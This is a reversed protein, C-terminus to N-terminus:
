KALRARVKRFAAAAPIAKTEGRDHKDLRREIEREWASEIRANAFEPSAGLLRDILMAKQSPALRMADHFVKDVSTKGM